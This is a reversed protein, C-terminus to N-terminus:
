GLAVFALTPVVFLLVLVVVLLVGYGVATAVATVWSPHDFGGPVDIAM